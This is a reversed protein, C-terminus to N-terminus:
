TRGSASCWRKIYGKQKSLPRFSSGVLQGWSQRSAGLAFPKADAQNIGGAIAAPAIGFARSRIGVDRELRPVRADQLRCLELWAGCLSGRLCPCVLVPLVLATYRVLPLLLLPLFRALVVIVLEVGHVGGGVAVSGPMHKRGRPHGSYSPLFAHAKKKKKETKCPLITALDPCPSQGLLPPYSLHAKPIFHQQRLVITKCCKREKSFQLALAKTEAAGRGM